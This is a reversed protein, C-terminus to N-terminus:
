RDYDLVEIGDSTALLKVYVPYDKGRINRKAELIAEGYNNLANLVQEPSEEIIYMSYIGTRMLEERTVPKDPPLACAVAVVAALLLLITLRRM